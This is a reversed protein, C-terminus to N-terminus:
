GEPNKAFSRVFNLLPSKAVDMERNVVIGKMRQLSKQM